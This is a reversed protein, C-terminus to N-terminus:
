AGMLGIVLAMVLITVLENSINLLTLKPPRGEFLDHTFFRLSTFGLWAWLATCIADQLLSDGFFKNDIFIFNALVYATILSAVFTLGLMKAMDSGAFKKSMDVKALKAWTNGFVGRAYWISGEVMSSVAALLVAWYNIAVDM